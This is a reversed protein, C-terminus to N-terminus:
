DVHLISEMVLIQFSPYAAACGGGITAWAHPFHTASPDRLACSHFMLLLPSLFNIKSAVLYRIM